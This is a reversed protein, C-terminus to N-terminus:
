DAVVIKKTLVANESEIALLYTGRKLHPFSLNYIGIGDELARQYMLRGLLDYVKLSSSSPNVFLYTFSNNIVPNPYVELLPTDVDDVKLIANAVSFNPIGNGINFNPNDVLHSSAVIAAIIEQASKQYNAQWLCATMGAIIPSSFSTGSSTNITNNPNYITTNEGQASVTPKLRGDYTPGKSSFNSVESNQNISGVTIISDADAPASIYYWSGNGANGASNCVIMGKRAAFTAAKSIPTTFGDLDAYSHNQYDLDFTTYGLSSNIIDVGVSDCVRCCSDL